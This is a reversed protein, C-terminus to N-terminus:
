RSPVEPGPHKSNPINLAVRRSDVPPLCGNPGCAMYTVAAEVKAGQGLRSLAVPIRLTVPGAPYMPFDLNLIKVHEITPKVTELLEGTVRLGTTSTIEVRTPRGVGDIGRNPLDVGYLQFGPSSPSFTSSLWTEGLDDRELAFSVRVGNETFGPLSSLVTPPLMLRIYRHVDGVSFHRAEGWRARSTGYVQQGTADLVVFMPVGDRMPDIRYRKAVDANRFATEGMFYMGVDIKIVHFHKDLFARVVPERFAVSTVTCDLCWDAGFDLLVFKGDTKARALAGDIDKLPNSTPYDVPRPQAPTAPSQFAGLALATAALAAVCLSIRRKFERLTM